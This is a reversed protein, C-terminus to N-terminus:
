DTLSHFHDGSPDSINNHGYKAVSQQNALKRILIGSVLVLACVEEVEDDDDDNEDGGSRWEWQRGQRPKCKPMGNTM